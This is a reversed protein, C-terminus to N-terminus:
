MENIVEGGARTALKQFLGLATPVHSSDINESVSQVSGDCMLFHVIGPHASGFPLYNLAHRPGTLPCRM